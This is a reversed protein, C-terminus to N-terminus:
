EWRCFILIKQSQFKSNLLITEERLIRSHIKKEKTEKNLISFIKADKVQIDILKIEKKLKKWISFSISKTILCINETLFQLHEFDSISTRTKKEKEGGGGGKKKVENQVSSIQINAVLNEFVFHCASVSVCVCM